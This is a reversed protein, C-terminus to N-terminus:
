RVKKAAEKVSINGNESHQFLNEFFRSLRWGDVWKVLFFQKKSKSM